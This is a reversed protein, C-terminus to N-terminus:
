PSLSDPPPVPLHWLDLRPTPGRGAPPGFSREDGFYVTLRRGGESWRVEDAFRRILFLGRGSPKTRNEHATPDGVRDWAFGAGEDVIELCADNGYRRRVRIAKTPDERNGHRWANNLAEELVVQLRMPAATVGHRRWEEEIETLLRTRQARLGALDAPHLVTETWATPRELELVVLAVDDPLSHSAAADCCSSGTISQFLANAFPVARLGPRAAALSRAHALVAASSLEPGGRALPAELLGDTYLVLKDGPELAVSAAAFEQHDLMGVPPNTGPEGVEPVARVEAGRVLLFPPHGAAVYTLQLTAHDLELNLATFFDGDRFLHSRCIERNLQTVITALPVAPGPAALLAHHVLDTIISRLICGVEHGSQDKLSVLTRGGTPGALHRVFSHDGGELYRPIAQSATHLLLGGPLPTNRPQAADVLLLVQHALGISMEQKELLRRLSANSEALETTRQVVCEELDAHARRLTEEALRRRSDDILVGAVGVPRGDTFVLHSYSAGVFTTGDRRLFRYEEGNLKQGALLRAWNARLREHDAPHVLSFLNVGAPPEDAPFRAIARGEQNLLTINGQLDLEYVAQPLADVVQRYKRESAALAQQAREREALATYLRENAAALEATRARVREELHAHARQLAEAAARAATVDTLMGIMRRAGDSTVISYGRARLWRHCGDRHRMRFETEFPSPGRLSDRLAATLRRRDAPHVLRLWRLVTSGLAPLAYGLVQAVSESWLIHGTGLNFEYTIQGSAAAVLEYRRKWAVIEDEAQRRQTVDRISEIAGTVRGRSDRLARASGWLFVPRGDPLRAASSEGFLAGNETCFATYDREITEDRALALDILMPRRRGYFPLAYEHQGRGLMVAAPVGSLTEMAKNWATITGAADVVFTPDPLFSVIADLRDHAARLDEEVARRARAELVLSVCGGVGAAFAQEAATWVRPTAYEFCVLGVIRGDSRVPVELRAGPATTPPQACALAPAEMAGIDGGPRAFVAFHEPFAAATLREGESHRRAVADFRDACCLEDAATSRFWVSVRPVDLAAAVTETITRWVAPSDDRVLRLDGTLAALAQNFQQSRAERQELAAEAQRRATSDRYAGLLGVGGAVRVPSFVASLIRREGSRSRAPLEVEVTTGDRLAHAVASRARDLVGPEPHLAQLLQEFTGAASRSYGTIRRMQRNFNLFRGIEDVLVLGDGARELVAVLQRALNNSRAQPARRVELLGRLRESLASLNTEDLAFYDVAGARMWHVASSVDAWDSYVAVRAPCPRGFLEGAHREAVEAAVLVLDIQCAAVEAQAELPTEHAVVAYEAQGALAARLRRTADAPGLLCLQWPTTPSSALSTVAEHLPQAEPM